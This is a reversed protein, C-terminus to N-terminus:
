FTATTELPKLMFELTLGWSRCGSRDAVNRESYGGAVWWAGEM